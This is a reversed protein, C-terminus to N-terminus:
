KLGFALGVWRLMAFPTSNRMVGLSSSPCQYQSTMLFPWSTTARPTASVSGAAHSCASSAARFAFNIAHGSDRARGSHKRPPAMDTAWYSVTVAVVAVALVIIDRPVTVSVAASGDSNLAIVPTNASYPAAVSSGEALNKREPGSPM